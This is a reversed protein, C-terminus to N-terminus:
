DSVDDILLEDDTNDIVCDEILINSWKSSQGINAEKAKRKYYTAKAMDAAQSFLQDEAEAEDVKQKYYAGEVEDVAQSMFEDEEDQVHLGAEALALLESLRSTGDEEEGLLEVKVM